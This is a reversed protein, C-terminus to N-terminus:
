SLLLFGGAESLHFPACSSASLQRLAGRLPQELGAHGEVFGGQEDM